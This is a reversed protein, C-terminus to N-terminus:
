DTNIFVLYHKHKSVHTHQWLRSIFITHTKNSVHMGGACVSVSIIEGKLTTTALNKNLNVKQLPM